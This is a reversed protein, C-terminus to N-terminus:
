VRKSNVFLRRTLIFQVATSVALVQKKGDLVINFLVFQQQQSCIGVFSWQTVFRRTCVLCMTVFAGMSQSVMIEPPAENVPRATGLTTGM